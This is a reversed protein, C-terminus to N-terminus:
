KQSPDAGLRGQVSRTREFCQERYARVLSGIFCIPDKLPGTLAFGPMVQSLGSPPRIIPNPSSRPRIIPNHNSLPRIM